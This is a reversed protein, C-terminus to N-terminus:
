CKKKAQKIYNIRMKDCVGCHDENTMDAKKYAVNEESLNWRGLKPAIYPKFDFRNKLNLVKKIFNKM